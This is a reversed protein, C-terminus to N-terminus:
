GGAAAMVLRYKKEFGDIIQSIKQNSNSEKKNAFVEQLQEYLDFIMIEQLLDIESIPFSKGKMGSVSYVGRRNDLYIWSIGYYNGKKNKGIWINPSSNKIKGQEYLNRIEKRIDYSLFIPFKKDKGSIYYILEPDFLEDYPVTGNEQAKYFAEASFWVEVCWSLLDLDRYKKELYRANIRLLPLDFKKALTDKINDLHKQGPTEHLDGDFEIAFIPLSSANDIITFDFHSKLSFTYEENSIGSNNIPFIDALRVKPFVSVNDNSCVEQLRGYTVKEYNNFIQKGM